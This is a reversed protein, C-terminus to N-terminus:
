KDRKPFQKEWQALRKTRARTQDILCSLNIAIYATGGSVRQADFDCDSDRSKIWDLEAKKLMERNDDDLGNRLQTYARNLAKDAAALEGNLCEQLLDERSVKDCPGAMAGGALLALTAACAWNRLSDTRM